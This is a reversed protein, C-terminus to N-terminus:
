EKPTQTDNAPYSVSCKQGMEQAALLASQTSTRSREYMASVITNNDRTKEALDNQLKELRNLLNKDAGRYLNLKSRFEESVRTYHEAVIAKEDQLIAFTVLDNQTLSQAEREALSILNQTVRVLMQIAQSKEAPLIAPAKVAANVANNNQSQTQQM